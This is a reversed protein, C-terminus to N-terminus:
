WPPSSDEDAISQMHASAAEHEIVPVAMALGIVDNPGAHGHAKPGGVVWAKATTPWYDVAREGHVRVHIESFEHVRYGKADALRKLEALRKEGRERKAKGM